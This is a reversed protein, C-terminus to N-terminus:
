SKNKNLIRSLYKEILDDNAQPLFEIDYKAMKM